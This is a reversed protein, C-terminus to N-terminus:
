PRENTELRTTVQNSAVAHRTGLSFQPFTYSNKIILPFFLRSLHEVLELNILFAFGVRSAKWQLM